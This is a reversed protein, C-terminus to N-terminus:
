ISFPIFYRSNLNFGSIPSEDKSRSKTGHELILSRCNDLDFTFGAMEFTQTLLFNKPFYCMGRSPNSVYRSHIDRGQQSLFHNKM